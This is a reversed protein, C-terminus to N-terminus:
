RDSRNRVVCFQIYQPDVYAKTLVLPRQTESFHLHELLLLLYGEPRDLSAAVEERAQCPIIEAVSYFIPETLARDSFTFVSDEFDGAWESEPRLCDPRVHDIALVAPRGDALFLRKIVPVVAGASLGLKGAMAAPLPRLGAWLVRQEARFGYAELISLFRQGRSINARLAVAHRNIFTGRGHIRNLVGDKQLSLAIARITPRSVGFRRSLEEEPPMRTVGEEALRRILALVEEKVQTQLSLRSM